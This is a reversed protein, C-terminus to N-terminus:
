TLSSPCFFGGTAPTAIVNPKYGTWDLGFIYLTFWFHISLAHHNPPEVMSVPMRNSNNNIENDMITSNQNNVSVACARLLNSFTADASDRAQYNLSVPLQITSIAQGPLYIITNDGIEENNNLGKGILLGTMADKAIIQVRNLRTTIYNRRNDMTVNLLWTSEFAVNSTRGGQQTQSVKTPVSNVAGEIRILPVRPYFLFMMVAVMIVVLFISIVWTRRGCCCCALDNNSKKHHDQRPLTEGGCRIFCCKGVWIGTADIKEEEKPLHKEQEVVALKSPM